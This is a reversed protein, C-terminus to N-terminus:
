HYMSAHLLCELLPGDFFVFSVKPHLQALRRGRKRKNEKVTRFRIKSLCQKGGIHERVQSAKAVRLAGDHLLLYVHSGM